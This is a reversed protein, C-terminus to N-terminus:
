QCSECPTNVPYDASPAAVSTLKKVKSAAESHLYYTSSLGLSWAHFYLDSLERMSKGRYYLNLSQGQDIWKQRAAAAEILIKQDIDFNIKYRDKIDDPLDLKSVDGDNKQLGAVLEPSWLGREKLEKAFAENFMTFDGSITSYVYLVSTWPGTSESCVLFSSITATPAVAQVLSNRIGFKALRERLSDWDQRTRLFQGRQTGRHEAMFEDFLEHPFQGQSWASGKYGPYTGREEALDISAATAYYAIFEQLEDALIVADSSDFPLKKKHLLDAWGMVGLGLPRYTLNAKRTEKTPYWNLDVANDLARVVRKIENRLADWDIVGHDDVYASVNISHLTCVATEGTKTVEGDEYATPVTHIFVETNRTIFGNCTWARDESDVMLCYVDENPQPTVAKVAAWYREPYGERKLNELYKEHKRADGFGSAEELARCSQVSTILLRNSERCWYEASGGRGNPMARYGAQHLPRIRSKAGVSLLLVQIESLFGPTSSVLSVSTMKGPVAQMTGDTVFVGRLYAGITDCDGRWVFEPVQMKTEATFGFAELVFALPSSSLRIKRESTSNAFKPEAKAGTRLHYLHSNEELVRAVAAEVDGQLHVDKPWLDILSSGNGFTGDGALLGCIFALDPEHVDGHVGFTHQIEVRDGPVLDKAEVWGRNLVWLPHDPTVKHSYGEETEVLVVPSNEITKVMPSAARVDGRGAVRLRGGEEALEKVTVLGRDTVARQDGTVCCLQSSHIVGAHKNMYTENPADKFTMWPHGTEKIAALMKRWLDKARVTRFNKIGGVAALNEYHAYREAFHHGFTEHLDPVEDPSFLTWDADDRVRRMFEDPIWSATNLDHCRRSDDGTGKRLDLFDEYDIHWVEQYLCCAGKRAGGQNVAVVMDNYQKAWPVTGQGKGNTGRIFANLGRLPTIDLGLGGGHKSLRAFQHLTGYIGDISDELTGVFCSSLQAKVKGSNLLTPTAPCSKLNSFLEYLGIASETANSENLSLGMAVRMWFSQPPELRRGDDHNSYRDHLTKVSVYKLLLDREPKIARSLRSLDFSSVMRPDFRGSDVLWTINEIFGRRYEGTLAKDTAHRFAERYWGYLLLRAAVYSYNPESVIRATAVMVTARDIETTKVGDYLQAFAEDTILAPSVDALGRCARDVCRAIKKKDASETSGDRKIVSLM